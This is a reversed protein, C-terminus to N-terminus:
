LLREFFFCFSVVFQVFKCFFDVCLGIFVAGSFLLAFRFRTHLHGFTDRLYVPKSDSSARDRYHVPPGFIPLAALVPLHVWAHEKLACASSTQVVRRCDMFNEISPVVSVRHIRLRTLQRAIAM